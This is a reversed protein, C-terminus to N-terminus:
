SETSKFHSKVIKRMSKISEEYDRSFQKVETEKIVRLSKNRIVAMGVTGFEDLKLDSKSIFFLEANQIPQFNSIVLPSFREVFVFVKKSDSCNVLYEACGVCFSGNLLVFSEYDKIVSYLECSKGQEDYVRLKSLDQSLVFSCSTFFSIIALFLSRWAM